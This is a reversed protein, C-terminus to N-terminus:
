SPISAAPTSATNPLSEGCLCLPVCLAGKAISSVVNHSRGDFDVTPKAWAKQLRRVLRTETPLQRQASDPELFLNSQRNSVATELQVAAVAEVYDYVLGHDNFYLCDSFDKGNM